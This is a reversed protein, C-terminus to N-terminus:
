RGLRSELQRVFSQLAARQAEQWKVVVFYRGKDFFVTDASPHWRQVIDLGVASSSLRYLRAELKGPGEYTAIEIREISLRPVPDPAEGASAERLSTRRWEGASEADPMPEVKGCAALLLAPLACFRLRM